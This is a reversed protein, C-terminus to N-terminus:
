SSIMSGPVFGSLSRFGTEQPVQVFREVIAAVGHDEIRAHLSLRLKPSAWCIMWSDMLLVLFLPGENPCRSAILLGSM